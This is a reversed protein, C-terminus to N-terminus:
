QGPPRDETESDPGSTAGDPAGLRRKVADLVGNVFKVADETSFTRALEIAENIVVSPPAEAGAMLEFAALRLILRDVVAMRALRWHEASAVIIPDIEGVREITGLALREALVRVRPPVSVGGIELAWYSAPVDRAEGHGVEWLYLMQLAAERARRRDRATLREPKAIRDGAAGTTVGV